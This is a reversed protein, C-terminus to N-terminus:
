DTMYAIAEEPVSDVLDQHMLEHSIISALERPDENAYRSNIQIEKTGDSYQVSLGKYSPDLNTFVIRDFAGSKLWDIAGDAVTGKLMAVAARLRVDSVQKMLTPDDLLNAAAQAQTTATAQSLSPNMATYLQTMKTTVFSKLQTETEPSAPAAAPNYS